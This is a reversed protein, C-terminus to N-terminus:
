TLGRVLKCRHNPILLVAYLILQYVWGIILLQPIFAWYFIHSFLSHDLADLRYLGNGGVFALSWLFLAVFVIAMYVERPLSHLLKCEKRFAITIAEAIAFLSDIALTFITLFFLTAFVPVAFPLTALAAPFAVFALTPGSAVVETIPVGQTQATYGLTGFIAFAAIFSVLANGCAIFATSRVINTKPSNFTAYLVTIALGINASFFAQSAANKWLEVSAIKALDPVLLFSFGNASGPLFFSNILLVLLLIIPLTVTWQVAKTISDLGKFISVYAVCYAIATGVIIPVSFGGFVAPDDTLHLVNTFFFEQANEAWPVSPSAYLYYVSWGTIAAYYGALAVLILVMLWAAFRGIYGGHESMIAVFGIRKSQGLAVEAMMMPIVLVFLCVLYAVIFSAGGNNYVMYPFRWLNGLGAAAGVAALIFIWQSKWATTSM